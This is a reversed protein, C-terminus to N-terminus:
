HLQLPSTSLLKLLLVYFQLVGAFCSHSVIPMPLGIRFSLSCSYLMNTSVSVSSSKSPTLLTVDLDSALCPNSCLKPFLASMAQSWALKIVSLGWTKFFNRFGTWPVCARVVSGKEDQLLRVLLTQLKRAKASGTYLSVFRQLYVLRTTVLTDSYM